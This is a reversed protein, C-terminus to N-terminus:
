NSAPQRSDPPPSGTLRLNVFKNLLDFWFPAGMTVAVSSILIGLLKRLWGSSGQADRVGDRAWGIPPMNTTRISAAVCSLPDKANDPCKDTAQPTEVQKQAEAAVATRLAEDNWLERIIMLSDVNLAICLGLGLVAILAQTRRKYAGSVREMTDDYWNEVRQRALDADQQASDLLTLVAKSVRPDPLNSVGNKLDQVTRSQGPNAPAIVDFLALAFNRSSIYAPKIGPEVTGAILHNQILKSTISGQPDALMNRIAKELTNARMDLARAILEKIGSCVTSVVLYIFILGVSVELVQSSAM